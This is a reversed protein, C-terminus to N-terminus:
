HGLHKRLRDSLDKVRKGRKAKAEVGGFAAIGSVVIVPARAETAEQTRVDFGGFVGTGTGRLTVNEPVKIEVGGFIAIANIVTEPQEFVAETLDIEIGGFMAFANTRPGVRWRGRRTAGSFIAVVNQASAPMSSHPAGDRLSAQAAPAPTGAGTPLDRVLPDLEGVTKASYVGEVREAHEDATLRGEALAERLIDAVRDRDADSARLDGAAAVTGAPPTAEDVPAILRKPQEPKELSPEEV